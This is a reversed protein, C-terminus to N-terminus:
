RRGGVDPMEVKIAACWRRLDAVTKCDHYTPVRADRGDQQDIFIKGGVIVVDCNDCFIVCDLCPTAEEREDRDLQDLYDDVVIVKDDDFQRSDKLVAPYVLDIAVGSRALRLREIAAHLELITTM